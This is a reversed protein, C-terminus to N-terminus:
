LEETFANRENLSDHWDDLPPYSYENVARAFFRRCYGEKRMSHVVALLFVAELMLALSFALITFEATPDSEVLHRMGWLVASGALCVLAGIVMVTAQNLKSRYELVESM